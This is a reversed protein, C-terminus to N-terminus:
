VTLGATALSAYLRDVKERLAETEVHDYAAATSRVLQEISRLEEADVESGSVHAGYLVVGFLENRAFLPVAVVPRASAPPFTSATRAAEVLRLAERTEQLQLLVADDPHIALSTGPPWGVEFRRTYMGSEDRVFM